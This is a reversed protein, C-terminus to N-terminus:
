CFPLRLLFEAGGGEHDGVTLEGHHLEALEKAISLGLGFHAKDHRSADAQYFRDFLCSKDADAIGCGEDWVRIDLRHLLSDTQVKIGISKGAPTFRLANDLLISLIQGLRGADGSIVPLSDAPLKLELTVGADRCLPLWTEYIDILLTDMDFPKVTLSWSGADTSALLLLDDILRSMRRCEREMVPYLSDREKPTRQCADLSSRLVALPSRLEHSASAIFQAQRKRSEEVPRLSWGVFRQSVLLLGAIGAFELVCLFLPLPHIRQMVPPIQGLLSIGMVGKRTSIAAAMAYYRDGERGALKMVSTQSIAASVPPSSLSIGEHGALELSHAILEQRGTPPTWAGSFRLPIKNEEIHIILRHSGEMQALWSHSVSSASQLQSLVTLFDSKFQEELRRDADRISFLLVGGLVMTLIMGTTMTYLWVLRRHLTNFM